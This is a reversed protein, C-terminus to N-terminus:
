VVTVLMDAREDGNTIVTVGLQDYNSLENPADVVLWGTGSDDVKIEGVGTRDGNLAVWVRYVRENSTPPCGGVVVMPPKGPASLLKGQGQWSGWNAADLSTMAVVNGGAGFYSSLQEQAAVADDREDTTRALLISLVVVGALLLISAASLLIVLRNSRWTSGAAAASTKATETSPMVGGPVTQGTAAALVRARLEPPPTAQPAAAGLSDVVHAYSAAEARCNACTALHLDIRSREDAELAGLAYAALMPQIENCDPEGMAASM